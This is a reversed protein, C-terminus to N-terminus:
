RTRGKMRAKQQSKKLERQEFEAYKGAIFNNISYIDIPEEMFERYSLNFMKRYQYQSLMQKAWSM